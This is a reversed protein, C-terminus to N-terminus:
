WCCYDEEDAKYKVLIEDAKYLVRGDEQEYALGPFALLIFFAACFVPKLWFLLSKKIKIKM